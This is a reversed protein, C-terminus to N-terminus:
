RNKTCVQAGGYRERIADPVHAYRTDEEETAAYFEQDFEEDIPM